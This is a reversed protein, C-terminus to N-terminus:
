SVGEEGEEEDLMEEEMEDIEDFEEIPSGILHHGIIHVPGTGQALSFTVPPDPFTLELLCQSSPGGAGGKLTAVPIKITDKWTMAEVMIVNLEGEKAEPGLVAQKIVLKHGGQFDESAKTEPDWSESAKEGQLTLALIFICM